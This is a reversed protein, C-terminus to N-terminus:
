CFLTYNSEHSLVLNTDDAFMVDVSLNPAKFLDNVYILFLLPGLISWPPVGFIIDVFNESVDQSSIYQKRNSLYSKFWESPTGNIGYHQLKKQDVTDFSKFHDLFVGLTNEM